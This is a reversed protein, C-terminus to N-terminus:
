RPYHNRDNGYRYGRSEFLPTHKQCLMTYCTQYEDSSFKCCSTKEVWGILALIAAQNDIDTVPFAIICDYSSSSFSARIHWFLALDSLPNENNVVVITPPQNSFITISLRNIFDIWSLKGIMSQCFQLYSETNCIEPKEHCIAGIYDAIGKPKNGPVLGFNVLMYLFYPSEEQYELLYLNTRGLNPYRYYEARIVSKWSIVDASHTNFFENVQNHKLIIVQRQRCIDYSIRAWEEELGITIVLEPRYTTLEKEIKEFLNRDGLDVIVIRAFKGGYIQSLLSFVSITERQTIEKNVLVAISHPRVRVLTEIKEAKM